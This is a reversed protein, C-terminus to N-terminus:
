HCYRVTDVLWGGSSTRVIAARARLTGDSHSIFALAPRRDRHILLLHDSHDAGKAKMLPRIAQQPTPFGKTGPEYDAVGISQASSNCDRQVAGPTKVNGEGSADGSQGSACGAITVLGVVVALAVRSRHM